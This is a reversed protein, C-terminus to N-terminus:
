LKVIKFGIRLLVEEIEDVRMPGNLNVWNLSKLTKLRDSIFIDVTMIGKRLHNEISDVIYENGDLDECTVNIDVMEKFYVDIDKNDERRIVKVKKLTSINITGDPNVELQRGFNRELIDLCEQETLSIITGPFTIETVIEELQLNTINGETKLDLIKYEKGDFKMTFM